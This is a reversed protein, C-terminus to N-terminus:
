SPLILSLLSHQHSAIGALRHVLIVFMRYFTFFICLYSNDWVRVPFSLVMVGIVAINTACDLLVM